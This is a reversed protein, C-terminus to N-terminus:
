AKFGRQVQYYFKDCSYYLLKAKNKQVLKGMESLRGQQGWGISIIKTTKNKV